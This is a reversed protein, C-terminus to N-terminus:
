SRMMEFDSGEPNQPAPVVAFPFQIVGTQLYHDVANEVAPTPALYQEVYRQGTRRLWVSVAMTTSSRFGNATARLYGWSRVRDGLANLVLWGTLMFVSWLYHVTLGPAGVVYPFGFLENEMAVAEPVGASAEPSGYLLFGEVESLWQAGQYRLAEPGSRLWDALAGYLGFRVASSTARVVLWDHARIGLMGLLREGVSSFLQLMFHVKVWTGVLPWNELSGEAPLYDEYCLGEQELGSVQM